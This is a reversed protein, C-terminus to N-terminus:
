QVLQAFDVQQKADLGIRLPWSPQILSGPFKLIEAGTM